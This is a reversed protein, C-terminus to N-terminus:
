KEGREVSSGSWHLKKRLVNFYSYGPLNLIRVGRDALSVRVRDGKRVASHEQGDVVLLLNKDASEVQIEVVSGDPIVIPRNSLTHPCIPNVVFVPSGPHLVPGGASLSHGTSGTPTSVILGDCVTTDVPEGNVSLTLTVVRSTTGWGLVVDNLAYHRGLNRRGRILRCELRTRCSEICQGGALAALAEEVRDVPVSTLFGLSGLNVGLVPIDADGIMRVAYLMAGDGGLALLAEIKRRFTQPQWLRAEPLLRATQDCTALRLDLRRACDAIRRLTERAAPKSLNALVGLTKM